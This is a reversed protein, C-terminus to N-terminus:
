LAGVRRSDRRLWPRSGSAQDARIGAKQIQFCAVTPLEATEATPPGATVLMAAAVLRM